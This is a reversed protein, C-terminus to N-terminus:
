HPFRVSGGICADAELPQPGALRGPWNKPHYPDSPTNDYSNREEWRPPMGGDDFGSQPTSSSSTSGYPSVPPLPVTVANIDSRRFPPSPHLERSNSFHQLSVPLSPRHAHTHNHANASPTSTPRALGPAPSQGQQGAAMTAECTKMHRSSLFFPTLRSSLPRPCSSLTFPSYRRLNSAVSFSRACLHCRHALLNYSNSLIRPFDPIISFSLSNRKEGTHSLM